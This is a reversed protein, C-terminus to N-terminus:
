VLRRVMYRAAAGYAPLQASAAELSEFGLRRWLRDTGYVSVLALAGLRNDAAVTALKEMLAAAAGMGRAQPLLAVDHLYLCDAAAPLAGLFRDLPAAAGLTWGHALAYGAVGGDIELAFCGAPFLRLKEEFVERREPLAPHVARAIREVERLDAPALPRWSFDCQMPRIM